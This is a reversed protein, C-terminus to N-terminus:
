EGVRKGRQRKEGWEGEGERWMAEVERGGAMERERERGKEAGVVRMVGM